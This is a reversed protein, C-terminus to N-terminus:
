QTAHRLLHNELASSIAEQASRQRFTALRTAAAQQFGAPNNYLAVIGEVLDANRFCFLHERYLAASPDDTEDESIVPIGNILPHFCRIAEFNEVHEANHLNLVAWSKLMAADREKGYFNMLATVPVGATRIRQIIDIRRPTDCGYFFLEPKRDTPMPHRVLAPSFLFPILAKREHPIHKLNNASYDWVDFRNLLARYVGNNFYWGESNSLQESNFIIVDDPLNAAHGPALLHAGIIVNCHDALIRNSSLMAPQGCANVQDHLYESAEALAASHLYGPPQILTINFNRPM